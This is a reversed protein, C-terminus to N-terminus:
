HINEITEQDEVPEDIDIISSLFDGDFRANLISMPGLVSELDELQEKTSNQPNNQNEM